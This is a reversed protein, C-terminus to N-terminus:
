RELAAVCEVHATHPFLDVPVVERAAYGPRALRALDRALTTPDCSVYVIRAPGLAAAAALAEESCGKRPPNLVVADARLGESVLEPLVREAPGERFDANTAGALGASALADAVAGPEEEVGVVERARQALLLTLAGVGCYADVVTEGGALAAAELARAYLVEAQAPNVQFFSGPSLLLRVGAVAEVFPERGALLRSERGLVVNTRGPNLNLWVGSVEPVASRLEEALDRAWTPDPVASVLVVMAEGTARSVRVLAHRLAGTGPRENYVPVRRRVVASKLERLVRDAVPHQVPCESLDVIRHSGAAFLGAVVGGRAIGFPFQAKHRYSWPTEMGLTPRVRVEGLGAAGLAEAVRTRKWEVQAPTGLNQLQCGGCRGFVPCRPAVRRPSPRLVDLLKGAGRDRGTWLVRARVSEGALAGPVALRIDDARLIGSGAEDLASVEGEVTLGVRTRAAPKGVVAGFGM